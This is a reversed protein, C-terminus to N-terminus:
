TLIYSTVMWLSQIHYITFPVMDFWVGLSKVKDETKDTNLLLFHDSLWGRIQLYVCNYFFVLLFRICLLPGLVSGQPVGHGVACTESLDNKFNVTQSRGSLYSRLWSLVNGTVGIFHELRDLLICHDVTDFAASLDLLVLFLLLHLM